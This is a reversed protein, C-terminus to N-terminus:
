IGLRDRLDPKVYRTELTYRRTPNKAQLAELYDQAKAWDRFTKKGVREVGDDHNAVHFRTGVAVVNAEIHLTAQFEAEDKCPSHFVTIGRTDIVSFGLM